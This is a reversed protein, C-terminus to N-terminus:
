RKLLHDGASKGQVDIKISDVLTLTQDSPKAEIQVVLAELPVGRMIACMRGTQVEMGTRDNEFSTQQCPETM